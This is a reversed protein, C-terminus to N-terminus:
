AKKTTAKKKTAKKKTARKTTAKKKAAPKKKPTMAAIRSAVIDAITKGTESEVVPDPDVPPKEDLELGSSAGENGNGLTSTGGNYALVEDETYKRAVLLENTRPHRWGQVSLVADKQYNPPTLRKDQM